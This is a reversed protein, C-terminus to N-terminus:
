FTAHGLPHVVVWVDWVQPDLHVPPLMALGVAPDRLAALEEGEPWVAAALQLAPGSLVALRALGVAADETARRVTAQYNLPVRKSKTKQNLTGKYLLWGM